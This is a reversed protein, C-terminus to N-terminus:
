HNLKKLKTIWRFLPILCGLVILLSFLYSILNTIDANPKPLKSINWIPIILDQSIASSSILGFIITLVFSIKSNLVNQKNEIISKKSDLLNKVLEKKKDIELENIAFRM